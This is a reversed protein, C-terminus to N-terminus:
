AWGSVAAVGALAGEAPGARPPLVRRRGALAAAVLDNQATTAEYAVLGFTALLCAACASPRVGFGLRRASAYVAVLIALQPSTSRCRTSRAPERRPSCSTSRGARRAAPVRQDPRHAREPGLLDRRPPVLRRSERPPLHALGLQEAPRHPCARARLRAPARDCRPLPADLPGLRGRPARRPRLRTASAATRAAVLDRGGRRAPRAGRRRSRRADCRADALSRAHRAGPERRLRRLSALLTASLSELRLCAGALLSTVVAVLILALGVM